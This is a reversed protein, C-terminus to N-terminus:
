VADYGHQQTRIRIADDLAQVFIKGDGVPTRSSRLIEDVLSPVRPTELVIEIKLQPALAKGPGAGRRRAAARRGTGWVQSVTMGEVCVHALIGKIQGLREPGLIVEVKSLHDQETDARAPNAGGHEAFRV